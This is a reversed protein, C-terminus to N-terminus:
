DTENKDEGMRMLQDQIDIIDNRREDDNEELAAVREFLEHVNVFFTIIGLGIVLGGICALAKIVIEMM